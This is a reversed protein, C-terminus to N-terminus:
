AEVPAMPPTAELLWAHFRHLVYIAYGLAVAAVANTVLMAAATMVFALVDVRRMKPFRRWISWDLLGIGVWATVGALAVLPILAIIEAGAPHLGILVAAHVINSIKTTGGCRVVALGRAPIGVSLPAGFAGAFLNAIGYADLEADADSGRRRKHRGQFHEVVRSTILINVSSILALGFAQPLLSTADAPNWSFGALPPMEAAVARVEAEHVGLLRALLIAAGVGLLPAPLQLSWWGVAISLGVVVGALLLPTLRIAEIQHMAASLQQLASGPARSLPTGIGLVIDLQSLIMMAGIGCFFGSVVTHSVATIHRGLRMVCFAMMIVSAVNSIKAAGSIGHERVAAVIFPVTGSGTGGILGPSRRLLTILPSTLIPTFLGYVPPLGMLSAM